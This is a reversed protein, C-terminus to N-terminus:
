CLYDVCGAAGSNDDKTLTLPVQRVRMSTSSESQGDNPLRVYMLSPVCLQSLIAHIAQLLLLGITPPALANKPLNTNLESHVLPQTAQTTIRLQATGDRYECTTVM